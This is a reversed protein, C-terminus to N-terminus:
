TLSEIDVKSTVDKLTMKLTNISRDTKETIKDLYINFALSTIVDTKKLGYEEKFDEIIKLERNIEDKTKYLGNDKLCEELHELTFVNIKQKM